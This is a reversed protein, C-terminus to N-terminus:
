KQIKMRKYAFVFHLCIALVIAGNLAAAPMPNTIAAFLQFVAVLALVMNLLIYFVKGIVALAKGM